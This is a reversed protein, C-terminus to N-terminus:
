LIIDFDRRLHALLGAIRRAGGHRPPYVAFPTVVLLRPGGSTGDTELPRLRYSFSQPGLEVVADRPDALMPPHPTNRARRADSRRRLTTTAIRAAAIERQSDYPLDCIRNMLWDIGFSTARNRADFLLRNRAVLRDIEEGSYFRSTTARHRH